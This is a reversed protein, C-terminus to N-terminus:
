CPLIQQHMPGLNSFFGEQWPCTFQLTFLIYLAVNKRTSGDTSLVRTAFPIACPTKKISTDAFFLCQLVPRLTENKLCCYPSRAERLFCCHNPHGSVLKLCGLPVGLGLGQLCEGRYKVPPTQCLHSLQQANVTLLAIILASGQQGPSGSGEGYWLSASFSSCHCWCFTDRHMQLLFFFFFFGKGKRGATDKREKRMEPFPSAPSDCCCKMFSPSGTPNPINRRRAM